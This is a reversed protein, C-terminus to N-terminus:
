EGCYHRVIARRAEIASESARREPDEILRLKVRAANCKEAFVNQRHAERNAKSSDQHACQSSIQSQIQKMVRMRTSDDIYVRKGEYYDEEWKVRYDGDEGRYAPMQYKLIDLQHRLHMCNDEAVSKQRRLDERKRKETSRKEIRAKAAEDAQKLSRLRRQEAEDPPGPTDVRLEISESHRSDPPSDGYHVNGSDDIWKFVDSSGSSTIGLALALSV